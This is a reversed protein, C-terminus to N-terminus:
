PIRSGMKAGEPSVRKGHIKYHCETCLVMTKRKKAIMIQEWREKGKLDKVKHVHHIQYHTATTTDCLECQKAKLRSEFTTNTHAHILGTIPIIDSADKSAKCERYDASYCVKPGQKTEYPIGWKGKGDQYKAIMKPVRSKHKHAISKLCSYEM